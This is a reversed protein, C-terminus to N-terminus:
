ATVLGESCKEYMYREYKLPGWNKSMNQCILKNVPACGGPRTACILAFRYVCSRYDNQEMM